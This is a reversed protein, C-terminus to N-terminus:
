VMAVARDHTLVCAHEWAAIAVTDWEYRRQVMARGARGLRQRMEEDRLLMVIADALAKPDRPPVLLGTEAHCVTDPLGGVHTAVVPVEMASSELAAACFSECESSVVNVDWRALFKPLDRHRQRSHWTIAHAVDLQRASSKCEDLQPGDGILEFRVDACEELVIAIARVLYTPGYVARFGKFFGVIRSSTPRRPAPTFLDTDVGLPAIALEDADIDAFRALEKAFSPGWATVVKARRLITKRYDMLVASVVEGPPPM